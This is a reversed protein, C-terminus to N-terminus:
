KICERDFLIYKTKQEVKGVLPLLTKQEVKGLTYKPEVKEL